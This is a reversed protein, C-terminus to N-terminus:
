PTKDDTKLSINDLIEDRSQDGIRQILFDDVYGEDIEWDIYSADYDVYNSTVDYGYYEGDDLQDIFEEESPAYGIYKGSQYGSLFGRLPLEDNYEWKGYFKLPEGLFESFDGEYNSPNSTNWLLYYNYCIILCVPFPLVMGRSLMFAYRPVDRLQIFEPHQKKLYKYCNAVFKNVKNGIEKFNVTGDLFDKDNEKLIRNYQSERLKIRM